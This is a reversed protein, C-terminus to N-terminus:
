GPRRREAGWLALGLLGVSVERVRKVLSLALGATEPLGVAAAALAFGTEQVVLAGPVAFGASRAAMGLSEVVVAQAPSVPLGITHLVAWSEISGLLWALLHLGSATALPTRRRYMAAAAAELGTLAGAAPWSAAIRRALAELLRLLGLRQAALLAAAAAATLATATVWGQWARSHWAAALVAAGGALFVLQTLFEITVDVVVSAAAVALAPGRRALLRAGVVEGGVQAVPLLSDIGERIIRFRYLMPLSLRHPLLLGWARASLLLQFLHLPVLAPLLWLAHWAGAGAARMDHGLSVVAWAAFGVLGVALVLNLTPQARLGAGVHGAGALRGAHRGADTRWPLHPAWGLLTRALSSDGAALTIESPRLRAPDVQMSADVGALALLEALVDGVRRPQGSAINLIAGPELRDRHQLCLAYAQCVDRVDLFDRMSDLAGVSLAAPQLGAAIRAVQRAFSAVVFSASQGPGTHNFPRARIVQLGERAMAGLALDAAAKTAGYTNMPNLAASEDLPTGRLFSRGYADATSM